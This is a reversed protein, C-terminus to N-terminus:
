LCPQQSNKPNYRVFIVYDSDTFLYYSGEFFFFFVILAYFAVYEKHLMNVIASTSVRATNSGTVM